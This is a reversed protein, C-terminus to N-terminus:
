IVRVMLIDKVSTIEKLVNDNFNNDVDIINYAYNGQSKNLMDAINIKHNALTQTIQGIINPVNRNAITIRTKGTQALVCEPYNVSNSINGSELFDRLQNVAMIACNEESEPTSAGLHPIPIVNDVNLLDNSPFDTIYKSVIGEKIAEILDPNNVLEGRAFNLIKVGKKMIAFKKKNLFGKTDKNLPCHLTIYDSDVIVSDLNAAKRVNRSVGWAAEISIFPDYGAVEMGLAYAANAVRVGIAGLGIVGIKKGMIEPGEFNSKGKEITKLADAEKTLTKAWSIGEFIKRSSMILGAVVLEKVGNANAGPTNFVVIGRESCKEVPINNVGAGARAVALLSKPLEMDLMQQSRVLIADPSLIESAYEYKDRALLDLGNTSIKNLTQIKYM